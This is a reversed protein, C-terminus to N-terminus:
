LSPHIKAYAEKEERIKNAAEESLTGNKMFDPIDIINGIVVSNDIDTFDSFSLTEICDFKGATEDFGYEMLCGSVGYSELEYLAKEENWTVVLYYDEGYTDPVFIIDNEYIQVGYKDTKGTSKCVTDPFIARHDKPPGGPFLEVIHWNGYFDHSPYLFGEIWDKNDRIIPKAKAKLSDFTYNRPNM